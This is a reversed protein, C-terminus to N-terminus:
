GFVIKGNEMRTSVTDGEKFRGELVAMSLPDLLHRQIARKLPRAGFVPDFGADALFRTVEDGVALTIGQKALREVVRNLQIKVIKDLEASDLRDFIVIEDVRNLFEPRFFEKLSE